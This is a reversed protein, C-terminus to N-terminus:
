GRENLWVRAAEFNRFHRLTIPLEARLRADLSCPHQSVWAVGLGELRDKYKWVVGVLQGIEDSTLRICLERNDVLIGDAIPRSEDELIQRLFELQIEYGRLGCITFIDKAAEDARSEIRTPTQMGGFGQVLRLHTAEERM